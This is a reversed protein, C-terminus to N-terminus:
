ERAGEGQRADSGTRSERRDADVHKAGQAVPSTSGARVTQVDAQAGNSAESTVAPPRLAIPKQGLKQLRTNAEALREQYRAERERLEANQARLQEVDDLLGAIRDYSAALAANSAQLRDFQERYQREQEIDADTPGTIEDVTGTATAGADARWVHVGVGLAALLTLVTIATSILLAARQSM